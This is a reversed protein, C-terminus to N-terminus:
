ALTGFSVGGTKRPLLLSVAVFGYNKRDSASKENVGVTRYNYVEYSENKGSRKKQFKPM